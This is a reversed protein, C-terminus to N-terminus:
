RIYSPDSYEEKKNMEKLSESIKSFSEEIKKVDKDIKSTDVKFKFLESIVELVARASGQDGFALKNDTEGMLCYGPIKHKYSAIAPLLGAVGSILTDLNNKEFFINKINKKELLEKSKVDTAVVVIKPKNDLRKDGINLGAFTYIESTGLKKSFDSIAESFEYHQESNAINALIPQVPGSIILYDKKNSSYYYVEDVILDMVANKAHVAPPFTDSTIKAYVECKPKLEKILYDIAIKGVLGIGPLGVLLVPNKLKKSSVVDIKTVM